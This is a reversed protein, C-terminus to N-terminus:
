LRRGCVEDTRLGARGAVLLDGGLEAGIRVPFKGEGVSAISDSALGTMAWALLVDIPAAIYSLYKLEGFGGCFLDISGTEAAVGRGMGVKLTGGM